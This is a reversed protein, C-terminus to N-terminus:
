FMFIRARYDQGIRLLADNVNENKERKKNLDITFQNMSFHRYCFIKNRDIRGDQMMARVSNTYVEFIGNKKMESYGTIWIPVKLAAYFEALLAAMKNQSSIIFKKIEEDRAALERLLVTRPTHLPTKNLIIVNKRFDIKLEANKRFFGEAIKGSPGVLYRRTIQERKGPNDGVLLLKIYDDKTIDLLSENFVILGPACIKLRTKCLSSFRERAACFGEWEANNM